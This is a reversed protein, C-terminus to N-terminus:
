GGTEKGNPRLAHWSGGFETLGNGSTEGRKSDGVYTYLPHGGYTVQTTGDSRPSTGLLSQQTGGAAQPTGGSTTLPPWIKACSGYCSSKSGKDKHFDYLTAGSSNVIIEGLKSNSTSSVTTGSPSPSKGAGTPQSKTPVASNPSGKGPSHSSTSKSTAAASQRLAQVATQLKAVEVTARHASLGALVARRNILRAGILEARLRTIQRQLGAVEGNSAGDNSTQIALYLATASVCALAAFLAAAIRTRKRIAREIEGIWARLGEAHSAASPDPQDAMPVQGNPIPRREDGLSPLQTGPGL